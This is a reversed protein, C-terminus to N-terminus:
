GEVKVMFRRGSKTSRVEVTGFSNVDTMAEWEGDRVKKDFVRRTVYRM